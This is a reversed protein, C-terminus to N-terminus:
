AARELMYGLGRLTSIRVGCDEIRKRLRHVIVEVNDATSDAQLVQECLIDKSVARGARDFLLRLLAAEKKPMPLPAGERYFAGQRADFSLAGVTRLDM